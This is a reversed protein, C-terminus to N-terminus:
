RCAVCSLFLFYVPALLWVLLIMRLWAFLSCRGLNFLSSCRVGVVLMSGVSAWLALLLWGAVLWCGVLLWGVVLWCGVVVAFCCDVFLHCCVVRLERLM